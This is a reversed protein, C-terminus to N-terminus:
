YFVADIEIPKIVLILDFMEQM